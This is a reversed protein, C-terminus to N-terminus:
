PCIYEQTTKVSVGLAALGAVLADRKFDLAADPNSPDPLWARDPKGGFAVTELVCHQCTGVKVQFQVGDGTAPTLKVFLQKANTQEITETEAEAEAETTTELSPSISALTATTPNLTTDTDTDTASFIATSIIAM